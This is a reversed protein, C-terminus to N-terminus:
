AHTTIGLNAGGRRAWDMTRRLADPLSILVEVGLERRARQIDPLYREPPGNGAAQLIEVETDALQAITEALGAISIAQDSGVNYPRLAQGECLIKLLWIVLDGAYLYSRLPTGDGRITIPGGALADRLFNGAAFHANLPLHPGVFAFGRAIKVPLGSAAALFEAARKGEAYASHATNPSPGGAFDEGLAEQEPPQRGYVAGSSTFLVAQTDAQGAFELVRRTGDVITDFMELPRTRNLKESAATAAHIVLPFRGPPFAFDRVDGHWWALAPHVALCPALRAFAGPNRSLVTAQLGLHLRDNAWLLAELLWRGFFGTGGTIFLREGALRRFLPEARLLVEDLDTALPNAHM